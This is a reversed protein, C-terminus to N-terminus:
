SMTHMFKDRREREGERLKIATTDAIDSIPQSDVVGIDDCEGLRTTAGGRGTSADVVDVLHATLLLHCDENSVLKENDSSNTYRENDSLHTCATM